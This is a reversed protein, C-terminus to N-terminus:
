HHAHQEKQWKRRMTRYCWVNDVFSYTVLMRPVHRWRFTVVDLLFKHWTASNLESLSFRRSQQRAKTLFVSLAKHWHYRRVSANIYEWDLSQRELDRYRKWEIPTIYKNEFISHAVIILFEDEPSIRPYSQTAASRSFVTSTNLYPVTNWSIARHLHIVFPEGTKQYFDKDTERIKSLNNHLVYGNQQLLAVAEPRQLPNILVLDIDEDDEYTKIPLTVIGATKLLQWRDSIADEKNHSM